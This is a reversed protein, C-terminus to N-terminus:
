EKTGRRAADEDSFWDIYGNDHESEASGGLVAVPELPRFMCFDLEPATYEEKM